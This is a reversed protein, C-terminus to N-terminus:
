IQKQALAAIEKERIFEHESENNLKFNLNKMLNILDKWREHTFKDPVLIDIDNVKGSEGIVRYLGLSGYLIPVISFFENLAKTIELFIKFKKRNIKLSM